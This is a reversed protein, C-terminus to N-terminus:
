GYNTATFTRNELFSFWKLDSQNHTGRESHSLETKRQGIPAPVPTEDLVTAELLNCPVCM